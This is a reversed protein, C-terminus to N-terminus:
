HLVTPYLKGIVTVSQVTLKIGLSVDYYFDVYGSNM